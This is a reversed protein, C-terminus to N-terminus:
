DKGEMRKLVRDLIEQALNSATKGTRAAQEKLRAKLGKRMKMNFNERPEGRADYKSSESM